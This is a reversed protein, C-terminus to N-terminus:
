RCEGGKANTSNNVSSDSGDHISCYLTSDTICRLDAIFYGSLIYEVVRDDGAGNCLLSGDHLYLGNKNRCSLRRYIEEYECIGYPFYRDIRSPENDNVVGFAVVDAM